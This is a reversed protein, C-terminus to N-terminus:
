AAEADDGETAQGAVWAELAALTDKYVAYAATKALKAASAPSLSSGDPLKDGPMLTGTECSIVPENKTTGDDYEVDQMTCALTYMTRPSTRVQGMAKVVLTGDEAVEFKGGNEYTAFLFAFFEPIFSFKKALEEQLSEKTLDTRNEGTKADKLAALVDSKKLAPKQKKAM